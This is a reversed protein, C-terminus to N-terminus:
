LRLVTVDDSFEALPRVIVGEEENAVVATSGVVIAAGPLGAEEDYGVLVDGQQRYTIPVETAGASRLAGAVGGVEKHTRVAEGISGYRDIDPLGPDDYIVNMAESVLSGCDTVGWEFPEGRISEAWRGLRIDWNNVRKM